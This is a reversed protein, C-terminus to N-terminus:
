KGALAGFTGVRPHQLDDVTKIRRHQRDIDALLHIHEDLSRRDPPCASPYISRPSYLSTASLVEMGQLKVQAGTEAVTLNVALDFWKFLPVVVDNVNGAVTLLQSGSLEDRGAGADAILLYRGPLVNRIDFASGQPQAMGHVFNDSVSLLVVTDRNSDWTANAEMRGRVHFSPSRFVHIDIGQVEAGARTQVPSAAAMDTTNPYYVPAYTMESKEPPAAEGYRTNLIPGQRPWGKVLYRGPALNPLRYEGRDNTQAGGAQVWDEKGNTAARKLVMVYAGDVPDGEEDLVRGSVVSQPMLLIDDLTIHSDIGLGFPRKTWGDQALFGTRSAALRFHGPPLATFQFRGDADSESTLSVHPASITVIARRIPAGTVANVVRGEVVGTGPPPFQAVLAGAFACGSVLAALWVYRM